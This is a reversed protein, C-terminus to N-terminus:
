ECDLNTQSYIGKEKDTPEAWLTEVTIEDLIDSEYRVLIKEM